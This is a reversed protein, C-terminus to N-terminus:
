RAGEAHRRGMSLALDRHSWRSGEHASEGCSCMWKEWTLSRKEFVGPKTEIVYESTETVASVVHEYEHLKFLELQGPLEKSM